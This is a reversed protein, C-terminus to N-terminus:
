KNADAQQWDWAPYINVGIFDVLHLLQEARGDSLWFTATQSTGVPTHPFDSKAQQLYKPIIGYGIMDPDENGVLVGEINGRAVAPQVFGKYNDATWDDHGPFLDTQKSLGFEAPACERTSLVDPLFLEGRVRSFSPLESRRLRLDCKPQRL